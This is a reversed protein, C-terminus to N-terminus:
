GATESPVREVLIQDAIGPDLALETEGVQVVCAPARQLLTVEAGPVVGFVALNNHRSPGGGGLCVVRAREGRRLDRVTEVRESGRAIPAGRRRFLRGLWTIPRPTAPFEYQCNPCRALTCTAGLPCGHSCLTDAMTFEFGCFPCSLYEGAM